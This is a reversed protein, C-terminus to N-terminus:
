RGIANLEVQVEAKRVGRLDHRVEVIESDRIQVSRGVKLCSGPAQMAIVNGIVVAEIGVEATFVIMGPEGGFKAISFHAMQEIDNGIMHADTLCAVAPPHVNELIAAARGKSSEEIDVPIGKVRFQCAFNQEWHEAVLESLDELVALKTEIELLTTEPNSVM